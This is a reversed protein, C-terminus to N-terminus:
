GGTGTLSPRETESTDDASPLAAGELRARRARDEDTDWDNAPIACIRQIALRYDHKPRAVGRLWNSVAPQSIGLATAVQTISRSADAAIWEEFKQRGPTDQVMITMIIVVLRM